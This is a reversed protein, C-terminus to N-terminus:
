IFFKSRFVRQFYLGKRSIMNGGVTERAETLVVDVGSQNLYFAATAGTIGSGVVVVDVEVREIVNEQVNQEGQVPLQSMLLGLLVKGPMMRVSYVVNLSGIFTVLLLFLKILYGSMKM